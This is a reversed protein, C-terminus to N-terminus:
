AGTKIEPPRYTGDQSWDFSPQDLTRDTADIHIVWAGPPDDPEPERPLNTLWNRRNM